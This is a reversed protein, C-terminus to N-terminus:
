EVRRVVRVSTRTQRMTEDTGVVWSHLMLAMFIVALAAGYYRQRIEKVRAAAESNERELGLLMLHRAYAGISRAGARFASQGLITREDVPLNIPLNCTGTGLAHTM